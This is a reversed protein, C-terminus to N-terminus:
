AAHLDAWRTTGGCHTRIGHHMSLAAIIGLGRGHDEPDLGGVSRQPQPAPGGDTVEVRLTRHGDIHTRSLRLAAPPLAHVIANTIMESIVLLADERIDTRLNWDSLVLYARQRVAAVTEFAHPLPFLHETSEYPLTNSRTISGVATGNM